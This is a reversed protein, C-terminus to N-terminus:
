KLVIKDIELRFSQAKKNGILFAIEEMSAGPYNPKELKRGRFGPYMESFPIEITEWEGTTDFTKIYSHWDSSSTKIRFQFSKGDGKVTLIVKSYSKVEKERFRYRLSSFGGNNELSVMGYFIAHGESNVEMNGKSRGGMVGDDVVYWNSLDSASTFDFITMTQTFFLLPVLFIYQIFVLM